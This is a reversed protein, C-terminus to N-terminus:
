RPWATWKAIAALNNRRDPSTVVDMYLLEDIGQRNDAQAFIQRDGCRVSAKWICAM